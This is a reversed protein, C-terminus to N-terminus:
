LPKEIAMVTRMAGCYTQRAVTNEGLITLEQRRGRGIRTACALDFDAATLENMGNRNVFMPLLVSYGTQASQRRKGDFISRRFKKGEGM